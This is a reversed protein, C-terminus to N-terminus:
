VRKRRFWRSVRRILSRRHLRDRRGRSPKDLSKTLFTAYVETVVALL